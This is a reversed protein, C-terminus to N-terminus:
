KWFGLLVFLLIWLADMFHWYLGVTKSISKRATLEKDSITVNWTRLLLYGLVIIGGLVHLAHIGTFIYFFGAYPNSAVYVDQRILEFWTLIQSSIFAGGLVTTIILWTKAKLQNDEQLLKNSFQYTVSSALILGTSIWIQLPLDFPKWAFEDNTALVIYTGILGGFTMFVVMLIFWMSIRLKLESNKESNQNLDNDPPPNDGNNGGGGGGRNRAGGNSGKGGSFSSRLKKKKEKEQITEVTGVKM